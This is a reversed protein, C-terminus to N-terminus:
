RAQYELKARVHGLKSDVFLPLMRLEAEIPAWQVDAFVGPVDAALETLPVRQIACRQMEEFHEEVNEFYELLADFDQAKTSKRPM